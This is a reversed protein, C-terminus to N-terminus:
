APARSRTRGLVCACMSVGQEDDHRQWRSRRDLVDRRHALRRAQVCICVSPLRSMCRSACMGLLFCAQVSDTMGPTGRAPEMTALLEQALETATKPCAMDEETGTQTAWEGELVRTWRDWERLMANHTEAKCV